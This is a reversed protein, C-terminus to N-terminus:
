PQPREVTGRWAGTEGGRAEVFERFRELDGKVKGGVIGTKDAM